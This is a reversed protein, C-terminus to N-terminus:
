RLRSTQPAAGKERGSDVTRGIAVARESDANSSGGRAPMVGAASPRSPPRPRTAARPPSSSTACGPVPRSSAPARVDVARGRIRACTHRAHVEGARGRM